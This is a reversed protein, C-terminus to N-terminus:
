VRIILIGVKPDGLVDDEIHTCSVQRTNVHYARRTCQVQASERARGQMNEWESVSAEAETTERVVMKKWPTTRYM